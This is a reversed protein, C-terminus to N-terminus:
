TIPFDKPRYGPDPPQPDLRELAGRVLRAVMANRRTKSDSPVVYWPAHPTSCRSVALEYATMYQGWRERDDLDAPNFKWRKSPQELRARLRKAQEEYSIHLFCKLIATKNAVLRREFDNIAGYRREIDKSPALKRVRAVLVDEYHSRDFVGISGKAPTEREIRWLFDHALEHESPPGFSAVRVGIPGTEKFVARITGSKGSTDLGQLVVLLAHKREAYLRDQLEDIVAADEALSEQADKKDPFLKSETDRDALRFPKGPAAVLAKAVEEPKPRAM